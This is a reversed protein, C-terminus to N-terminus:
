TAIRLVEIPWKQLPSPAQHWHARLDRTGNPEDRRTAVVSISLFGVHIPIVTQSPTRAIEAGVYDCWYPNRRQAAHNLRIAQTVRGVM